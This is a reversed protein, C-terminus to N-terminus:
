CNDATATITILPEDDADAQTYTLKCTSTDTDKGDPWIELTGADTDEVWEWDGDTVNLTDLMNQKTATMYGYSLEIPTSDVSVTPAPDADPATDEVGKIAARGYVMTNAGNIAGALGELTAKRADGQVGIFKPAATVALVGLIVIVVILEILTFGQQKKM